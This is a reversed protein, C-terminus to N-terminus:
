RPSPQDFEGIYFIIDDPQLGESSEASLVYIGTVDKGEMSNWEWCMKHIHWYFPNDTLESWGIEGYDVQFSTKPGVGRMGRAKTVSNMARWEMVDVFQVSDLESLGNGARGWVRAIIDRLSVGLSDFGNAVYDVKIRNGDIRFTNIINGGSKVTWENGSNVVTYGADDLEDCHVFGLALLFTILYPILLRM